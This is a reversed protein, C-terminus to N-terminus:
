LTQSRTGLCPPYATWWPSVCSPTLCFFHVLRVRYSCSLCQLDPLFPSPSFCCKNHNNDAHSQCLSYLLANLVFTLWKKEEHWKTKNEGRVNDWKAVLKLLLPRCSSLSTSHCIKGNWFDNDIGDINLSGWKTEVQIYSLSYM